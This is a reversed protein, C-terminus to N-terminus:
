LKELFAILNEDQDIGLKKRLRSRAVTISNVSQYTIASIEKTTMNLRLFACLKKENASLDPFKGNLKEYFHTHVEQFRVEFEKWTDRDSFSQLERVLDDIVKQNEKSFTLRSKLLKEVISSIFEYTRTLYIVNTTLEKNKYDLDLNLKDNELELGKRMLRDKEAELRHRKLKSRQLAYLMVLIFLLLLSTITIFLYIADRKQRRLDEQKRAADESRIKDEFRQQLELQTINRLNEQNKLSDYMIKLEKHYAYAERYDHLEEYASSILDLAIVQSRLYKNERSLQLSRQLTDLAVKYKGEMLYLNGLNNMAQLLGEMNGSEWNLRVARSLYDYSNVYNHRDKEIIGLNNLTTAMGINDDPDIYTMAKLFYTEAQDYDNMALYASGLNLYSATYYERKDPLGINDSMGDLYGILEIYTERADDLKGTHFYVIALNNLITIHQRAYTIEPIDPRISDLLRKASFLTKQVELYNSLRDLLVGKQVLLRVKKEYLGDKDAMTIAAELLSYLSDPQQDIMLPCLQLVAKIKLSDDLSTNYSHMLSDIRSQGSAAASFLVLICIIM